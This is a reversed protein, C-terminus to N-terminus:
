FPYPTGPRIFEIEVGIRGSDSLLEYIPYGGDGFGASAYPMKLGTEADLIAVGCDGQETDAESWASLVRDAGRDEDAECLTGIEEADFMAITGSDVGAEDLTAGLKSVVGPLVMRIRSVRKDRGYKAVKGEILYNGAQLEVVVGGDVPSTWTPDVIRMKGSRLGIDCFELWDSEEGKSGTKPEPLKWFDHDKELAEALRMQRMESKKPHM